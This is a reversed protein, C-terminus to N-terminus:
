QAPTQSQQRHKGIRCSEIARLKGDSPGDRKGTNQEANRETRHKHRMEPVVMEAFNSHSPRKQAGHRKIHNVAARNRCARKRVRDDTVVDRENNEHAGKKHDRAADMNAGGKFAGRQHVRREKKRASKKGVDHTRRTRRHQDNPRQKLSVLVALVAHMRENEENEKHGIDAAAQSRQAIRGQEQAEQATNVEEPGRLM